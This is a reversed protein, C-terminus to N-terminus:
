GTPIWGGYLPHDNQLPLSVSRGERAASYAATVFEISARGDALRVAANAKGNLAAAVERLYGRFGPEMAPAGAVVADIRAQDSGRAEFTWDQAMPAYPADGSTATLGEALIVIRSRDRASGLSVSSSVLAGSELRIGLSATDETEIPNVRTAVMAQVSAVPGLLCCILDHAHIAHCLLAGGQEGDWTGRWPVAYYAADRNWHTEFSAAHIQGILGTEQLASLQAMAPGFRYQFVPFVSRDAQASAHELADIDKLSCAVPKECIVHKQSRLADLAMPVHLPPPLCIDVLDIDDRAMIEAADAFIAIDPAVAKAREVDLDCFAAVTFLEPMTRYAELHQAGIGAGLIAVRIM